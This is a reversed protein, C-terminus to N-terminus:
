EVFERSPALFLMTMKFFLMYKILYYNFMNRINRDSWSVFKHSAWTPAYVKEIQDDTLESRLKAYLDPYDTIIGDLDAAVAWKMLQLSNVTWTYVFKGQSKADKILQDGGSGATLAIHHLSIASVQPFAMFERALTRSVGIHAVKFQPADNLAAKLVDMRWIGLVTRPAWFGELDENVTKLINVLKGVVWPENTMKVDIMLRINRYKEESAFKRAVQEFTPMHQSTKLNVAKKQMAESLQAKQELSYGHTSSSSSM